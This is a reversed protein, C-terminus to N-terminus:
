KTVDNITVNEAKIIKVTNNEVKVELYDSEPNVDILELLTKPMFLAWGSGSRSLKKKM